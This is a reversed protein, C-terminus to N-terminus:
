DTRPVKRFSTKPRSSVPCIRNSKKQANGNSLFISVMGWSDVVIGIAGIIENKYNECWIASLEQNDIKLSIVDGIKYNKDKLEQPSINTQCNGFEDVYLVEGKIETESLTKLFADDELLSEGTDSREVSAIQKIKEINSQIGAAYNGGREFELLYKAVTWGDNEEGVVNEVPVKVNDFFTQNVEHDGAMTIIPKIEIGPTDMDILIFTIGQQPKGSNDTRVLCFIRNAHQAHTTWIKTGNIIYHDGEKVAKCQLSALDSGSGPESYGQCWFDEGSLIRPLYFDKQEQIGYKMLVPGVMALGMATPSPAGAKSCESAFIYRQMDDWGTGGYEKPWKSGIWGKKHLIKHWKSSYEVESFVSATLKGAERLETTLEKDLFDIVEKRFEEYEPKFSLDM